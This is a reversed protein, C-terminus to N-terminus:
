LSPVSPLELFCLTGMLAESHAQTIMAKIPDSQLRFKDLDLLYPLPHISHTRYMFGHAVCVLDDLFSLFYQDIIFICLFELKYM